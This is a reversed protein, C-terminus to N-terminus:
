QPWWPQPFGQWRPLGFRTSPGNTLSRTKGVIHRRTRLWLRFRSSQTPDALEQFQTKGHPSRTSATTTAQRRPMNLNSM